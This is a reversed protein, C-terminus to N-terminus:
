DTAFESSRQLIDPLTLAREVRYPGVASRALAALTGGWGLRAGLDRAISRVYTGRSCAIRLTIEPPAADLLALSYIQVPRPALAVARGHRALDYSRRGGVKVASVAPPVQEILGEFDRLAFEVAAVSWGEVSRSELVEGALDDTSTVVGFRVRAIYEKPLAMFEDARRTAAGCLVILVGTAPPDLTGAHGVAKWRLARRLKHVVDFSTWGAPKNVSLM